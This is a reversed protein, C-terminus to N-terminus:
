PGGSGHDHDHDHGGTAEPEDDGAARLEAARAELEEARLRLRGLLVEQRHVEQEDGAARAQELRAEVRAARETLRRGIGATQLARDAASMESEVRSVLRMVAGPAHEEPGADAEDWPHEDYAAAVSADPREDHAAEPPDVVDLEGPPETPGLAARVEPAPLNEPPAAHQETPAVRGEAKADESDDPQAGLAWYGAGALVVAALAFM